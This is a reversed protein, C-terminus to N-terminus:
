ITRFADFMEAAGAHLKQRCAELGPIGTEIDVYEAEWAQVTPFVSTSNWTTETKVESRTPVKIEAM